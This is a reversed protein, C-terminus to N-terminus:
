SPKFLDPVLGPTYGWMSVSGCKPCVAQGRAIQEWTFCHGCSCATIQSVDENMNVRTVLGQKHEFRTNKSSM